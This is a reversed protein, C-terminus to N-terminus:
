SFNPHFKRTLADAQTLLQRASKKNPNRRVETEAHLTYQEMCFKLKNWEESGHPYEPEPLDLSALLRDKLPEHAYKGVAKKLIDREDSAPKFISM